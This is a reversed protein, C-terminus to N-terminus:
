SNKKEPTVETSKSYDWEKPNFKEPRDKKSATKKKM